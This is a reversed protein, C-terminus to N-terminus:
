HLQTWSGPWTARPGFLRQGGTDGSATQDTHQLGAPTVRSLLLQQTQSVVGSAGPLHHCPQSTHILPLHKGDTCSGTMEDEGELREM